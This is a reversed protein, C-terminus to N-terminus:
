FLEEKNWEEIKSEMEEADIEAFWPERDDKAVIWNEGSAIIIKDKYSDGFYGECYGYLKIGVFKDKYHM